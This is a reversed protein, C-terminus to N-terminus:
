NWKNRQLHIYIRAWHYLGIVPSVFVYMLSSLFIKRENLRNLLTKVMFLHLLWVLLVPWTFVMWNQIETVLLWGFGAVLFIGSLGDMLLLLKKFVGLDRWLLIRKRVLDIFEPKGLSANESLRTESTVSAEVKKQVFQNFVLELHAFHANMKGRFGDVEFYLQKNFLVNSQQYFLSLGASSYAASSLFAFFREVRCLRNYLGPRASYNLYNLSIDASDSAQESLRQLFHADLTDTEPSVFVVWDYTAAKLALNMALKESFRTEQRLSSFKLRPYKRAMVGIITLTADESFDDVVVVEFEPYDQQLLQLLLKEIREEENRINMLVSIPRFRNVQPNKKRFFLRFYFGFQFLLTLQFGALLMVYGSWQLLTRDFFDPAM